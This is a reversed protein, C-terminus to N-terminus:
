WMTFSQLAAFLSDKAVGVGNAVAISSQLAAALSGKAIGSATFGMLFLCIMLVPYALVSALGLFLLFDSSSVKAASPNSQSVQAIVCYRNLTRRHQSTLSM